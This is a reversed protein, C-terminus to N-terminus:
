VHLHITRVPLNSGLIRIHSINSTRDGAGRTDLHRQSLCRVRDAHNVVHDNHSHRYSHTFALDDWCMSLNPASVNRISRIVVFKELVSNSGQGIQLVIGKIYIGLM